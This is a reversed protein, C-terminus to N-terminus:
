ATMAEGAASPTVTHVEVSHFTFHFLFLSFPSVKVNLM